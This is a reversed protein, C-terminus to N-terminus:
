CKLTWQTVILIYGRKTSAVLSTVSESLIYQFMHVVFEKPHILTAAAAAQVPTPAQPPPGKAPQDSGDSQRRGDMM